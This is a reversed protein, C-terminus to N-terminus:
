YHPKRTQRLAVAFSRGAVTVGETVNGTVGVKAGKGPVGYSQSLVWIRGTGDDLEFAGSGLLGFSSVVTGAVAVEKGAYRAPNSTLEGISPHQPCATLVVSLACVVFLLAKYPTSLRM